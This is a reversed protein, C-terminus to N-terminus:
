LAGERCGVQVINYLASMPQLDYYPPNGTLLEIALCGVSWIDASTTVAKMEVVQMHGAADPPSLPTRPLATAAARPTHSVGRLIWATRLGLHCVSPAPHSRLPSAPWPPSQPPYLPPQAAVSAPLVLQREAQTCQVRPPVCSCVTIAPARPM